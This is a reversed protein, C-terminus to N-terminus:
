SSQSLIGTLLYGCEQPRDAGRAHLTRGRRASAMGSGVYCLGDCNLFTAVRVESGLPWTRYSGM